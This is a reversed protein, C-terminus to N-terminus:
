FLFWVAVNIANNRIYGEEPNEFISRRGNTLKIDLAISNFVVGASLLLGLDTSEIGELDEVDNESELVNSVLGSNNFEQEVLSLTMDLKASLNLAPAVGMNLFFYVDRSKKKSRTSLQLSVPFELYTLKFISNYKLIESEMNISTSIYYEGSYVMGKPVYEVAGRIGLWPLVNYTVFAGATITFNRGSPEIPFDVELTESLVNSIDNALYEADLGRFDAFGTGATIGADFKKQPLATLSIILMSIMLVTTQRKM